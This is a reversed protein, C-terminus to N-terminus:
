EDTEAKKIDMFEDYVEAVTKPQPGGLGPAYNAQPQRTPLVPPLDAKIGPGAVKVGGEQVGDARQVILRALAIEAKKFGEEEKCLKQQPVGGANTCYWGRYLFPKAKRPM